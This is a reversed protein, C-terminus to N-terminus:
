AGDIMGDGNTDGECPVEVELCQLLDLQGGEVLDDVDVIGGEMSHAQVDFIFVSGPLHGFLTSIDLIGSSEWSGLDEPDTDVLGAPVASRDM